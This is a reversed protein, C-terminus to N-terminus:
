LVEGVRRLDGRRLASKEAPRVALISAGPWALVRGDPRPDLALVDDTLFGAGRMVMRLALSTKGGGTAGVFAIARDGVRVASAHFVERGRLLAVWPLVRGVLFRQWRWAAVGPPACRTRDGSPSILALGFYRAYLRYGIAEDCDITRTARSNEFEEELLREPAGPRWSADIEARPVLELRTTPLPEPAAGAPLGPAVFDLELDIGFAHSHLTRGLDDGARAREPATAPM